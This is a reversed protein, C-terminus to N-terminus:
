PWGSNLREAFFQMLPLVEDRSRPMGDDPRTWRVAKVDAFERRLLDVAGDDVLESRSGYCVLVPTRAKARAEVSPVMSPPLPGGISVVGKFATEAEEEQNSPEAEGELVESVRPSSPLRVRSALGLALSAGEGFGFLLIDSLHWGCRRVLVDRVLRDLVLRQAKAFGPDPDLDGSGDAALTIDDGWYFHRTGEGTAAADDESLGLLAPPLPSTGRVAIGLVGPLALGRAFGAFPEEWDGLGHFLLLLATTSERPSPYALKVVLGDIGAFDEETPIRTPPAM